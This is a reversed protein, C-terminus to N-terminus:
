AADAALDRVGARVDVVDLELHVGHDRVAAEGAAGVAGAGEALDEGGAHVRLGRAHAEHALADGVPPRVPGAAVLVGVRGLQGVRVQTEAGDELGEDVTDLRIFLSGTCLSSGFSDEGQIVFTETDKGCRIDFQTRESFEVGFEIRRINMDITFNGLILRQEDYMLGNFTTRDDARLVPPLLPYSETFIGQIDITNQKELRTTAVVTEQDRFAMSIAVNDPEDLEIGLSNLSIEYSCTGGICNQPGIEPIDPESSISAVSITVNETTEQVLEIPSFLPALVIALVIIFLM